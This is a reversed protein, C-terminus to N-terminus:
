DLDDLINEDKKVPLTKEPVLFSFGLIGMGAIIIYFHLPLRLIMFVLGTFLVISGTWYIFNFVLSNESKTFSFLNLFLGIAGAILFITKASSSSIF